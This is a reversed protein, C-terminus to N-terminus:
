LGAELIVKRVSTASVRVGLVKLEGKRGLHHDAEPPKRSRWPTTNSADRFVRQRPPMDVSLTRVVSPPEFSLPTAVTRVFGRRACSTTESVRHSCPPILIDYVVKFDFNNPVIPAKATAPMTNAPTAVIVAKVAEDGCAAVSPTIVGGGRGSPM